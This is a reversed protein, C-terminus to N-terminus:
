STKSAPEAKGRGVCCGFWALGEGKELVKLEQRRVGNGGERRGRCAWRRFPTKGLAGSLVLFRHEEPGLTMASVWVRGEGCQSNHLHPVGSGLLFLPFLLWCESLALLWVPIISVTVHVIQKLEELLRRFPTGM